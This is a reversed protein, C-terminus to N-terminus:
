RCSSDTFRLTRVLSEGAIAAFHSRDYSAPPLFTLSFTSRGDRTIFAADHTSAYDVVRVSASVRAAGFISASAATVSPTTIRQGRPATAVTVLPAQATSGYEAVIRADTTIAQGPMSFSNTMRSTTLGATMAGTVATALWFLVILARHRLAFRTIRTM